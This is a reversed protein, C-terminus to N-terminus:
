ESFVTRWCALALGPGHSDYFNDEFANLCCYARAANNPSPPKGDKGVIMARALGLVCHRVGEPDEDKMKQLQIAVSAWDGKKGWMLLKALGFALNKDISTIAIARSQAEDGEAKAVAGLIVLAKRASGNAAQAIEPIVSESITLKEKGAVERILAELDDQNITRLKIESCRGLLAALLKQPDTTGLMFYVHAPTDELLKLIANQADNTLKHCEDIAIIRCAGGIPHLNLNRRLDRITDIGKFDATNIETYDNSSCKLNRRMIRMLTTKGTGTPGNFLIAHDVKNTQLAKRLQAVAHPQGIIESLKQPRYRKYLEPPSQDNM